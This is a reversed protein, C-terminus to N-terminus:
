NEEMEKLLKRIGDSDFVYKKNCFHCITEIKDKESVLDALEKRGLSILGREFKEKSCDCEYVPIINEEIIKVNNDGTVKVAIEKLSLESDLMSSISDIKSINDELKKIIDETADPMLTLFYGGSSKVGDKNVLVGLALVTPKQESDAFYKAFDEAIEGSVIPSIGIYPEKLGIDKIINLYGSNGVAGGVDIKGNDKLPLEVFPNQMYGKVKPFSNTVVVIKGAPGNGSIQITISDNTSKLDAGMISAMTLVRGMLATTTPTLDHTKRAENVLYTTNACTIAVKGDYALFKIIRDNNEM